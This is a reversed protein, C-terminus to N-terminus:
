WWLDKGMYKRVYRKSFRGYYEERVICKLSDEPPVKEIKLSRRDKLRIVTYNENSDEKKKILAAQQIARVVEDQRAYRVMVRLGNPCIIESNYIDVSGCSNTTLLLLLIVAFKNLSLKDLM